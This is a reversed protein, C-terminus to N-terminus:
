FLLLGEILLGLCSCFCWDQWLTKLCPFLVPFGKSIADIINFM